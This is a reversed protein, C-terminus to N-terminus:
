KGTSWPDLGDNAYGGIDSGPTRRGSGAPAPHRPGGSGLRRLKIQEHGKKGDVRVSKTEYGAHRAEVSLAQGEPVHLVAPVQDRRQGNVYLEADAPLTTVIVEREPVAPGSSASAAPPPPPAPRAAVSESALAGTAPGGTYPAERRLAIVGIPILAAVVLSAAALPAYRGWTTRPEQANGAAVGPATGQFYDLPVALAGPNGLVERVAEPMQGDRFRDLDEMLEGMSQYRHEPRKALAKLVIAELGPPAASDGTRLLAPAKYMHQTLIGMYNDADFPLAGSVLEYLIVGLSYIDTRHDVSTGAAQEPAMYHPTGFVTGARTLRDAGPGAMKAIGFDLIKVFDDDSGRAILHVNDPKLDRHVIGLAHAASLADAVQRAIHVIRKAPLPGNNRMEQALSKGELYEMVLYAAGDPLQGYDSVDVIHPHGISSAAQAERRFRDLMEQDRTMDARLVKIAVRKNILAHRSAYVIGMGGVGVVSELVYRGDITTGLFPDDEDEEEEHRGEGEGGAAVDAYVNPGFDVGLEGRITPREKPPLTDHPGENPDDPGGIPPLTGGAQPPPDTDPTRERERASSADGADFPYASSTPPDSTVPM